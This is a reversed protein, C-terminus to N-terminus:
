SPFTVCTAITCSLESSSCRALVALPKFKRLSVSKLDFSGTSAASSVAFPRTTSSGSCITNSVWPGSPHCSCLRTLMPCLLGNDRSGLPTKNDSPPAANSAHSAPVCHVPEYSGDGAGPCHVALQWGLSSGQGM